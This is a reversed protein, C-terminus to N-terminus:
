AKVEYLVIRYPSAYIQVEGEEQVDKCLSYFEYLTMEYSPYCNDLIVVKIKIRIDESTDRYVVVVELTEDGKLLLHVEKPMYERTMSSIRKLNNPVTEVKAEWNKIQRVVKRLDSAKCQFRM